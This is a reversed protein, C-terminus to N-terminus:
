RAYKIISIIKNMSYLPGTLVGAQQGGIVVTSKENALKEIYTYTHEPADWKGHMHKIASVLEERPFTKKMLYDYRQKRSEYPKYEFFHMAQDISERYDAIFRGHLNWNVPQIEILTLAGKM